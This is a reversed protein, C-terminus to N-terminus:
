PGHRPPVDKLARFTYWTRKRFSPKLNTHSFVLVASHQAGRTVLVYFCSDSLSPTQALRARHCRTRSFRDLLTLIFSIRTMHVSCYWLRPTSKGRKEYRVKEPKVRRGCDGISYSTGARRRHTRGGVNSGGTAATAPEVTGLFAESTKIANATCSVATDFVFM